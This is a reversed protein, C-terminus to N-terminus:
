GAPECGVMLPECRHSGAKCWVHMHVPDALWAADILHLLACDATAWPCVQRPM